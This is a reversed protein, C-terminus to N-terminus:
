ESPPPFCLYFEISEGM